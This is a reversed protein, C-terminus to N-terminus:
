KEARLLFGRIVKGAYFRIGPDGTVLPNDAFREDARADPVIFLDDSDEAVM